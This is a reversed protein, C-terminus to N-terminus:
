LQQGNILNLISSYLKLIDIDYLLQWCLVRTRETVGMDGGDCAPMTDWDVEVESMCLM